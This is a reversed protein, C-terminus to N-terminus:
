KFKNYKSKAFKELPLDDPKIPSWPKETEREMQNTWREGSGIGYESPRINKMREHQRMKTQFDDDEFEDEVDFGYDEIDDDFDELDDLSPEDELPTNPLAWKPIWKLSFRENANWVEPHSVSISIM